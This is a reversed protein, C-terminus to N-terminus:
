IEKPAPIVIKQESNLHTAKSVVVELDASTYSADLIKVVRKTAEETVVPEKTNQVFAKFEKKNFKSKHLKRFDIMPIETGEWSVVQKSFLIDLQLSSMLDRGIILDYELNQDEFVNFKWKFIKKDSLGDWGVCFSFSFGSRVATKPLIKGM